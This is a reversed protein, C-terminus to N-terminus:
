MLHGGIGALPLHPRRPSAVGVGVASTSRGVINTVAAASRPQNSVCRVSRCLDSVRCCEGPEWVGASASRGDALSTGISCPGPSPAPHLISSCRSRRGTSAGCRKSNGTPRTTPTSFMDSFRLTKKPSTTASTSTTSSTSTPAPQELGLFTQLWDRGKAWQPNDDALMRLVAAEPVDGDFGYKPWVNYGFAGSGGTAKDSRISDSSYVVGEGPGLGQLEDIKHVGEAQQKIVAMWTNAGAPSSTGSTGTPDEKRTKEDKESRHRHVTKILLMDAKKEYGINTDQMGLPFNTHVNFKNTKFLSLRVSVKTLGRAPQSIVDWGIVDLFLTPQPFLLVVAPDKLVRARVDDPEGDYSVEGNKYVDGEWVARLEPAEPVDGEKSAARKQEIVLPPPMGLEVTGLSINGLVQGMPIPAAELQVQSALAQLNAGNLIQVVTNREDTTLEKTDFSGEGFSDFEKLQSWM